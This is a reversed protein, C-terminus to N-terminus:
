RRRFYPICFVNSCHAVQLGAHQGYWAVLPLGDAGTAVSTGFLADDPAVTTTTASRCAVNSCHAIKVPGFDTQPREYSVVGLGDAGISISTFGGLDGMDITTTTSSSCDVNSCHAVKLAGNTSDLYSILGFGDSGTAISSWKGAVGATEVPATTWATCAANSCHAVKLRGFVAYSVLGLGDGGITVSTGEDAEGNPELNTITAQTCAADECHAVKPFLGKPDTFAILGLGDAGIAISLEEFAFNEGGGLSSITSASCSVNSCHAVKLNGVVGGSYAILGLGDAGIAVAPYTEPADESEVTHATASRCALDDCHAVRLRYWGDYAVLPLGDAGIAISAYRGSPSPELAARTFGPRDLGM